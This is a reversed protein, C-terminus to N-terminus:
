YNLFGKLNVIYMYFNMELLLINMFNFNNYICKGQINISYLQVKFFEYFQFYFRIFMCIGYEIFYYVFVVINNYM